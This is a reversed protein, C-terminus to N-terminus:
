KEEMKRGLRGADEDNEPLAGSQILSVQVLKPLRSFEKGRIDKMKIVERSLIAARPLNISSM